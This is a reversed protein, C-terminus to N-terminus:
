RSVYWAAVWGQAGGPDTVVLWQGSVGIKLGDASNVLKLVTGLPLRKILTSDNIVPQSRLALQDTISRVSIQNAPPPNVPPTVPPPDVPPTVPAPQSAKQVYWAAVYGQAGGPDSVKIWQGQVGLKAAAQDPPEQLTLLTNLPLRKILSADSVLPQSRLALGDVTPSLAFSGSPPPPDVPPNVPPPVPAPAPPQAAAYWAAVYGQDGAPDQVNLWQGPQGLRAAISEPADLGLLATGQALRKILAGDFAGAARLALGDEAVYITVANAPAPKGPPQVPAASVSDFFFAALIASRLDSGSFKYRQTLLVDKEPADGPYRYPDYILYDSGQRDKLLVWHTQIGSAASWDVEVIVPKGASLAADFQDLPAPSNESSIYKRYVLNPFAAPVASPIIMAGQFGNHQKMKDNVSPPTENYGAGNLMMTISTLLCGWSGITGGDTPFGLPINKWAPDNQYLNNTQFVACMRLWRFM